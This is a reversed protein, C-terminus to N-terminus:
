GWGGKKSDRKLKERIEIDKVKDTCPQCRDFSAYRILDINDKKCGDGQCKGYLNGIIRM